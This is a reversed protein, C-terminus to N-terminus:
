KKVPDGIEWLAIGNEGSFLNRYGGLYKGAAIETPKYFATTHSTSFDALTAATGKSNYSTLVVHRQPAAQRTDAPISVYDSLFLLQGGRVFAYSLGPGSLAGANNPVVAYRYSGNNDISFYIMKQALRNEGYRGIEQIAHQLDAADAQTRFRPQDRAPYFVPEDNKPLPIKPDAVPPGPNEPISKGSRSKGATNEAPPYFRSDHGTKGPLIEGDVDRDKHLQYGPMDIMWNGVFLQGDHEFIEKLRLNEAPNETKKIYRLNSRVIAGLEDPFPYFKPDFREQAGFYPFQISVVGKKVKEQGDYYYGFLKLRHAATDDRFSLDMFKIKDFEFLAAQLSDTKLPLTYFALSTSLHYNSLKDYAGFHINGETDMILATITSRQPDYPIKYFGSRIENWATDLVVARLYNRQRTDTVISYYLFYNNREDTVLAPASGGSAPFYYNSYSFWTRKGLEDLRTISVGLSDKSRSKWTLYVSSGSIRFNVSRDSIYEKTINVLQFSSDFTYIFSPWGTAPEFVLYHTGLKGIVKPNTFHIGASAFLQMDTKQAGSILACLCFGWCVAIKKM